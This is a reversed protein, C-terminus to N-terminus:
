LPLLDPIIETRKESAAEIALCLALANRGVEGPVPSPGSGAIADLFAEHSNRYHRGTPEVPEFAGGAVSLEVPHDNFGTRIVGKEGYIELYGTSKPYNWSLELVGTAGDTFEFLSAVHDTVDGEAIRSQGFAAVRAVPGFYWQLLDAMHVAIDMVVGGHAAKSLFWKAGPSWSKDPSSTGARVCRIHLPKGITGEAILDKLFAYHPTFRLTQNVQLVLGRSRALAIMEDAQALSVAMPKEVLVHIGAGLLAMAIPHHTHNPTSIIAAEIGSAILAEVSDFVAADPLCEAGLKEAPERLVDFIASGVARERLELIAPIHHVRTIKGAGIFGLKIKHM